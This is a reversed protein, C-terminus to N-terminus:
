KGEGEGQAPQQAPQDRRAEDGRDFPSPDPIPWAANAALLMERTPERPVCVFQPANTPPM